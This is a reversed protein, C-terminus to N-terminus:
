RRGRRVFRCDPDLRYGKQPRNQILLPEAPPAGEVVLHLEALQDRCREVNKTVAEKSMKLAAGIDGTATFRFDERLLGETRDRDHAPKLARVVKVPAGAVAGLGIAVLRPPMESPSLEVQLPFIGSGASRGQRAPPEPIPEVRPRPAALKPGAVSEETLMRLLSTPELAASGDNGMRTAIAASIVDGVARGHRRHLDLAKRLAASGPEDPFGDIIRMLEGAFQDRFAREDMDALRLAHRTWDLALTRSADKPRPGTLVDTEYADFPDGDTMGAALLAFRRDLCQSCAGCHPKDRSREFVHSCSVARGVLDAAGHDRLKAVVETKTLWQFPNDIRVPEGAVHGLLEGLRVLGLPHTTRTAMSGIVQPSIPLNQSVIGNEFLSVRTAGLMRAVAFGIAAFLLSRSRQTTDRVKARRRRARVPIWLVRSGYRRELERALDAQFPMRKQASQHTVLAVRGPSTELTEIAGALSDLGGSFLIVHAFPEGDETPGFPFYTQTEVPREAQFFSFEFSDDSLFEAAAILAARTQPLKWFEPDRVAIRFKFNRRWAEGMNTRLDTGRPVTADAAFVASAVELLDLLRDPVPAMLRASLKDTAIEFNPDAGHFRIAREGEAAVADADVVFRADTM